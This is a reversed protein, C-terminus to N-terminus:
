PHRLFVHGGIARTVEHSRAWDPDAKEPAYFHLAGRTIDLARRAHEPLSWYSQVVFRAITLARQWAPQDKPKDSRGDHTWSFQKPQWVVQCVTSPFRGSVVRNMSVMAVALQGALAEGRAEFYINLALCHVEDQRANAADPTKALAQSSILVLLFIQLIRM